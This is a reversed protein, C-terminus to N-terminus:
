SNPWSQDGRTRKGPAKALSHRVEDLTVIQLGRSKSPNGVDVLIKIKNNKKCTQLTRAQNFRDTTTSQQGNKSYQKQLRGGWQSGTM